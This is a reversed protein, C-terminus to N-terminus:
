RLRKTPLAGCGRPGSGSGDSLAELRIQRLARKSDFAIPYPLQWAAITRKVQKWDNESNNPDNIDGPSQFGVMEMGLKHYKLYLMRRAPVADQCHSCNIRLFEIVTVHGTLGGLWIANPSNTWNKKSIVWRPAAKGVLPALPSSTAIPAPTAVPAPTTESSVQSLSPKSLAIGSLLLPFLFRPASTQVGKIM